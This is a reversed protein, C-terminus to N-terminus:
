YIVGPVCLIFHLAMTGILYRSIIMNETQFIDLKVLSSHKVVHPVIASVRNHLYTGETVSSCSALKQDLVIWGIVVRFHGSWYQKGQM